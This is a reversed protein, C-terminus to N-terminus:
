SEGGGAAGLRRKVEELEQRLLRAEERLLEVEQTQSSTDPAGLRDDSLGRRGRGGRNRSGRGWRGLMRGMFGPDTEGACAGSRRGSRPGQGDPGTGDGQPM